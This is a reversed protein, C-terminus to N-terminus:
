QKISWGDFAFRQRQTYNMKYGAMIKAKGNIGCGKTFGLGTHTCIPRKM